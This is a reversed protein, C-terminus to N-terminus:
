DTPPPTDRAITGDPGPVLGGEQFEAWDPRRILYERWEEGDVSVLTWDQESMYMSLLLREAAGRHRQEMAAAYRAVEGRRDGRAWFVALNM